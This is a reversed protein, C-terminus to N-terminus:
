NLQQLLAHETQPVTAESALSVATSAWQQQYTDFDLKQAWALVGADLGLVLLEDFASGDDDDDGSDAAPAWTGGAPELQRPMSSQHQKAPTLLLQRELQRLLQEESSCRQCPLTDPQQQQQQQWVQSSAAACHSDGAASGAHETAAGGADTGAASIGHAPVARAQM